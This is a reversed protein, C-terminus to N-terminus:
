VKKGWVAQDNALLTQACSVPSCSRTPQFPRRVMYKEGGCVVGHAYFRCTEEFNEAFEKIEGKSM